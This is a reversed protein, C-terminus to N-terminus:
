GLAFARSPMGPLREPSAKNMTPHAYSALIAFDPMSPREKEPHLLIRYNSFV